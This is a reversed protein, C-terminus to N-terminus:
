VLSRLVGLKGNDNTNKCVCVDYCMLGGVRMGEDIVHCITIPWMVVVRDLGQDYGVDMDFQHFPLLEGERTILKKIM